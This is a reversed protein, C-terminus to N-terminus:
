LQLNYFQMESVSTTLYVEFVVVAADWRFPCVFICGTDRICPVVGTGEGVAGTGIDWVWRWCSVVPAVRSAGLTVPAHEVGQVVVLM